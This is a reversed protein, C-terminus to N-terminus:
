TDTFSSFYVSMNNLNVNPFWLMGADVQQTSQLPVLQQLFGSAAAHWKGSFCFM